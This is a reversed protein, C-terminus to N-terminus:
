VRGEALNDAMVQYLNLSERGVILSFVRRVQELGRVIGLGANWCQRSEDWGLGDSQLRYYSPECTVFPWSGASADQSQSTSQGVTAYGACDLEPWSDTKRPYPFSALTDCHFDVTTEDELLLQLTWLDEDSKAIREVGLISYTQIESNGSAEIRELTSAVYPQHAKADCPILWTLRSSTNEAHWDFYEHVYQCARDSGGVLGVHKGFLFKSEFKRDLPSHKLFSDRHTLEDVALGGGPGMGSTKEFAGRCDLVIDARSAWNGRHRGEVLLRFQDECRDQPDIEEFRFTRLRSISTVPSLFHIDDFLLDTKALPLLYQEAYEKGTWITDPNPLIYDPNQSKIAAHGLPSTCLSVPCALKRHHWDLMRHAVRRTDFISVFYGLFRAYIAAEIGIPGAGIIALTAPSDLEPDWPLEIM